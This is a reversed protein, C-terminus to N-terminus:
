VGVDLSAWQGDSVDGIERVNPPRTAGYHFSQVASVAGSVMTDCDYGQIRGWESRSVGTGGFYMM